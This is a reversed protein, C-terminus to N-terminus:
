GNPHGGVGARTRDGFGWGGRQGAGNEQGEVLENPVQREQDYYTGWAHVHLTCGAMHVAAILITALPVLRKIM